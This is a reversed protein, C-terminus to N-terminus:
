TSPAKGTRIIREYQPTQGAALAVAGDLATGFPKQVAFGASELAHDLMAGFHGSALRGTATIAAGPQLECRSAVALATAVLDAVAQECIRSAVSDGAAAAAVVSMAFGAIDAAGSRHRYFEQVQGPGIGGLHASLDAVLSTQPQVGELAAVAARLGALGLAYGSGRDGLVYGWGDARAWRTGAGLALAVTGTGVSLVVGPAGLAGIHAIVSDDTLIVPAGFASELHDKLLARTRTASPLGTLGAAVRAVRPLDSPMAATIAAVIATVDADDSQYLFGDGYRDIRRSGDVVRLRLGSKGGDIGVFASM